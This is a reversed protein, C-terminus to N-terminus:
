EADSISGTETTLGSGPREDAVGSQKVYVWASSAAVAIVMAGVLVAWSWFVVPRSRRDVRRWILAVFGRDMQLVLGILVGVCCVITIVFSALTTIGM